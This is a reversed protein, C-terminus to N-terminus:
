LAAERLVRAPACGSPNGRDDEHWGEWRVGAEACPFFKCVWLSLYMTIMARGQSEGKRAAAQCAPGGCVLEM